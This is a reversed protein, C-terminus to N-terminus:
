RRYFVKLTGSADTTHSWNKAVVSFAVLNADIEERFPEGAFACWGGAPCNMSKELRTVEATKPLITVLRSCSAVQKQGTIVRLLRAIDGAGDAGEINRIAADNVDYGYFAGEKPGEYYTKALRQKLQEPMSPGFEQPNACPPDDIDVYVGHGVRLTVESKAEADRCDGCNKARESQADRRREYQPVAAAIRILEERSVTRGDVPLPAPGALERQLRGHLEGARELPVGVVTTRMARTVIRDAGEISLAHLQVRLAANKVEAALFSAAEDMGTVEPAPHPILVLDAAQGVIANGNVALDVRVPTAAFARGEYMVYVAKVSINDQTVSYSGTGEISVAHGLRAGNAGPTPYVGVQAGGYRLGTDSRVVVGSVTLIEASSVTVGGLVGCLVVMRIRVSLIM